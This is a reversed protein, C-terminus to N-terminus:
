SSAYSDRENALTILDKERVPIEAAIQSELTRIGDVATAIRSEFYNLVGQTPMSDPSGEVLRDGLRQVRNMVTAIREGHGFPASIASQSLFEAADKRVFFLARSWGDLRGAIPFHGSFTGLYGQALKLRDIDRALQQFERDLRAFTSRRQEERAEAIQQQQMVIQRQQLDIQAQGVRIQRQAVFYALTGLSITVIWGIVAVVVGLADSPQMKWAAEWLPGWLGLWGNLTLVLLIVAASAMGCYRELNM